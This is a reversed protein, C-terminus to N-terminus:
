PLSPNKDQRSFIGALQGDHRLEALGQENIRLLFAVDSAPDASSTCDLKIEQEASIAWFCHWTADVPKTSSFNARGEFAVTLVNIGFNNDGTATWVGAAPLPHCATLLLTM